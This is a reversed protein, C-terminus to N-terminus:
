LDVLQLIIELTFIITLLLIKVFCKKINSICFTSQVHINYKPSNTMVGISNTYITFKGNNTAELIVSTKNDSFMYHMTSVIEKNMYVTNTIIIHKAINIVEEITQCQSLIYTVLEMGSVKIKDLKIDKTSISSGENFAHLVGSLGYENMGDLLHINSDGYSMGIINYKNIIEGSNFKLIINKNIRIIKSNIQFINLKDSM